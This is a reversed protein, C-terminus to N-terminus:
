TSTEALRMQKQSFSSSSIGYTMEPIGSRRLCLRPRSCATRSWVVFGGTRTTSRGHKTQYTIGMIQSIRSVNRTNRNSHTSTTISNSLTETDMEMTMNGIPEVPDPTPEPQEITETKTETETVTETKIAQAEDRARKSEVQQARYEQLHEGTLIVRENFSKGLEDVMNDLSFTDGGKGSALADEMEKKLITSNEIFQKEADYFDDLSGKRGGFTDLDTNEIESIMSTVKNRIERLESSAAADKQRYTQHILREVITHVEKLNSVVTKRNTRQLDEPITEHITM